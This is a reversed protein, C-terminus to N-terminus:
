KKPWNAFANPNQVTFTHGDGASIIQGGSM